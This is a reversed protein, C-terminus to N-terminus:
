SPEVFKADIWGAQFPFQENCNKCIVHYMNDKKELVEIEFLEQRDVTKINMIVGGGHGLLPVSSNTLVGKFPFTVTEIHEESPIQPADNSHENVSPENPIFPISEDTKPTEIPSASATAIALGTLEAPSKRKEPPIVEPAWCGSLLLSICLVQKVKDDFTM